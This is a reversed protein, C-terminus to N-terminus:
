APAGPDDDGGLSMGEDEDDDTPGYALPNDESPRVDDPLQDDSIGPQNADDSGTTKEDSGSSSNQEDSM